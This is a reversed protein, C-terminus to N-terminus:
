DSGLRTHLGYTLVSIDDQGLVKFLGVLLNHLLSVGLEVEVSSCHSGRMIFLVPDDDQRRGPGSGSQNGICSSLVLPQPFYEFQLLYLIQM